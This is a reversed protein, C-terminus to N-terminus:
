DGIYAGSSRLKEIEDDQLHKYDVKGILTLPLESRFEIDRPCSWKILHERCHDILAKETEPNAQAPNKLVVFSKVREIQAQDPLGIVCAQEVQPHQCLIDEVQAPYVNMGSSKIMRKLRSRFYFFGDADMHAIDGTHLWTKGDEHEKLTAATEEPQDLYGQMVAPGHLCLEGEQETPTTKTGGIEVVKAEMDPFPIGISGERYEGMPMCMIATVAETLGYGELLKISGGSKAVAAEFTEKVSRPLRDAGVFAGRLCSLDANLFVPHHILAEYLTPVGVIISPRKNKIMKAVIDATFQPVLIAKGGGMFVSNICVGLGFGHFIPLIALISDQPNMHAWAAVQLGEAIFNQHSLVIGKPRGTTGGSYMIIAPDHTSIEVAPPEPHKAAMMDAFWRVKPDAPVKAIKRGKALWFGWKKLLPLYDPIRTLILTEVASEKMAESVAPYFTDLTLVMKSKSVQLFFAIEKPPSLPHILSVVAGLKLAAYVAIIGQPSTPMSITIRDAPRLGCAALARAFTDIEALMEQYTATYGFFDYAVADPCRQATQALAQYLSVQPYDLNAPVEGYFKLWPAQTTVPRGKRALLM